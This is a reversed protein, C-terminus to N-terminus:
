NTPIGENKTSNHLRLQVPQLVLQALLTRLLLLLFVFLEFPVRVVGVCGSGRSSVDVERFGGVVATIVDRLFLSHHRVDSSLRFSKFPHQM